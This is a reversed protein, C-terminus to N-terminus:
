YPIILSFIYVQYLSSIQHKTVNEHFNSPLTHCFMRYKGYLRIKLGYFKDTNLFLIYVTYKTWLFAYIAIQLLFIYIDTYCPGEFIGHTVNVDMENWSVIQDGGFISIEM